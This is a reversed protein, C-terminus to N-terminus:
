SRRALESVKVVPGTAVGNPSGGPPEVTVALARASRLARRQADQLSLYTYEDSTILGLSVASGQGDGPLAWLEYSRDPPVLDPRLAHVTIRSAGATARFDWLGQGDDAIMVATYVPTTVQSYYVWGIALAASVLGAAIAGRWPPTRALPADRAALRAQVAPWTRPDPRVSPVWGVLGSLREEWATVAARARGDTRLIREFRRRVRPALTGLVYAGGVYDLKRDDLNM